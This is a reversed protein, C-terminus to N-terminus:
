QNFTIAQVHTLVWDKDKIDFKIKTERNKNIKLKCKDRAFAKTRIEVVNDPIRISGRLELCNMFAERGIIKLSEPFIVTKLTPCNMFAQDEIEEVGEKFIVTNLALFSACIGAPIKKVSFIIEKCIKSLNTTELLALKAVSDAVFPKDAYKLETDVEKIVKLKNFPDKDKIANFIDIHAFLFNKFQENKTAGPYDANDAGNLFETVENHRVQIQWNVIRNESGRYRTKHMFCFLRGGRRTYHRWHYDSEGWGNCWRMGNNAEYGGSIAVAAKHSLPEIIDYDFTSAILKFDDKVMRNTAPDITTDKKLTAVLNSEPGSSIFDIFDQTTRYSTLQQKDVPLKEKNNYYDKCASKIAEAKSLINEKKRYSVLLLNKAIEGISKDTTKPDLAIIKDFDERPIDTYYKNYIQTIPDLEKETTDIDVSEPNEIFSLFDAVTRFSPFKPYKAINAYYKELSSKVKDLETIFSTEGDKYRPLLFQKAGFGLSKPQGNEVSTKPDALAIKDFIERDIMSWKRNYEDDIKAEILINSFTKM